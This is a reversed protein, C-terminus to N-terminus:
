CPRPTSRRPSSACTTSTGPATSCSRRTTRASTGRRARRRWGAMTCRRARTARTTGRSPRRARTTASAVRRRRSSSSSPAAAGSSTRTPPRRRRPAESAHPQLRPASRGTPPELADSAFYDFTYIVNSINALLTQEGFTWLKYYPAGGVLCPTRPDAAQAAVCAAEYVERVASAAVSKDRPESLIEYAAIRDFSAYHAAVHKWMACLMTRLTTNRFVVTGPASDYLQGAVYEGRVALVVWLGADTASRVWPDLDEFCKENFYHPPSNTLCEKNPHHQLPHTNGWQVGVLRALTSNPAIKKQLAGPDSGTRGIQWNFGTLRLPSATTPDILQSGEITLRLPSAAAGLMRGLNNNNNYIDFTM